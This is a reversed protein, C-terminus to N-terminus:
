GRPSEWRSSEWGPRARTSLYDELILTAALEDLHKKRKRWDFGMEALDRDAADSTLREDWAVVPISLSRELEAIFAETKETQRSRAGDMHVPCGVVLETVEEEEVLQRIHDFDSERDTRRLTPRGQVTVGLRDTVAIGIRRDGVDLAMVRM